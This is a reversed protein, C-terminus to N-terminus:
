SNFSKNEKLEREFKGLEDEFCVFTFFIEINYEYIISGRPFRDCHMNPLDNVVSKYEFVMGMFTIINNYFGENHYDGTKLVLKHRFNFTPLFKISKECFLAFAVGGTEHKTHKEYLYIKNDFSVHNM